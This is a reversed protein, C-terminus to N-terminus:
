RGAIVRILGEQTTSAVLKGERTYISGRNFGRAGGSAPSDQM